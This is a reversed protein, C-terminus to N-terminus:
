DKYMRYFFPVRPYNPNIVYGKLEKRMFVPRQVDFLFVSPADEILMKQAKSYLGQAKDNDPTSYAQLITKDFEPNQYYAFNWYPKDEAHWLSYLTEYPDSFTPWWLLAAMDHAKQPGGKMLDWQASWIMPRIEVNIGLKGLEEKILPAFAKEVANESAYTFVIEEEIGDPYGAEAMFKEAKRLDHTYQLLSDDHGFQGYPVPGVAQRGLGGMSVEIMQRYPISYSVAKRILKNKFPFKATNLHLAYNMFSAGVLRQCCEKTNFIKSSELPIRNALDAVGSELMQEAVTAEKVIKVV